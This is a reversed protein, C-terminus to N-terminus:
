DCQGLRSQPAGTTATGRPDLVWRSLGLDDSPLAPGIASFLIPVRRYVWQDDARAGFASTSLSADDGALTFGLLSAVHLADGALRGSATDLMARIVWYDPSAAEPGAAKAMLADAEPLDCSVIAALARLSGRSPVAGAVAMGVHEPQDSLAALWVANGSALGWPDSISRAAATRLIDDIGLAGRLAQWAGDGTLWPAAVLSDALASSALASDGGRSAVWALVLHNVSASRRLAIAQAAAAKARDPDGELSWAVALGAMTIDDAPDLDHARQLEAVGGSLDNAAVRLAGLERHYLGLGPDLAVALEMARRAGALDGSTAAGQAGEHLLGAGASTGVFAVLIGILALDVGWLMQSRHRPEISAVRPTAIALWAVGLAVAFPLDTPNATVCAALLFALAWISPTPPIRRLARAVGALTMAVAAVGLLGVEALLQFPMSDPHRPSFTTLDFYGTTPLSVPWGGPGVGTVVASSWERLSAAWLDWRARLSLLNGVRDGVARGLDPVLWVVVVVALLGVGLPLRWSRMRLNLRRGQSDKRLVVVAVTAGLGALWLGRSGAMLLLLLFAAAGVARLLRVPRDAPVLWLFPILLGCLLAVNHKFGYPGAPLPLNLLGSAPQGARLWGFWVILWLVCYTVALVMGATGLWLATRARMRPEAMATRSVYLLATYAAAALAADVAARPSRAVVAAGLFLLLGVLTFRDLGDAHRPAERMWVILLGIGLSANVLRLVPQVEGPGTGGVLAFYVWAAAALWEMPKFASTGSDGAPAASPRASMLQAGAIGAPM